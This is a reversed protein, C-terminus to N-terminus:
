HKSATLSAAKKQAAKVNNVLRGIDARFGTEDIQLGNLLTSLNRTLAAMGVAENIERESAGALKAFETESVICAHSPVQSGVALAILAKYKANLKTSTSLKLIKLEHWAGPLVSDPVSSLFEPVFGLTREIDQRATKADVVTIPAAPPASKKANEVIRAIESRFKTEDLQMGYFYASWHREEGALAIAEGLEAQTAGNLKAFADHAYICYRCPIQAAVGLGILEKVRGSLATNPNLQLGKMEEWTGPLAPDPLNQLFGPVFGLTKAIDALAAEAEPSRKHDDAIAPRGSMTVTVLVAATLMTLLTKKM